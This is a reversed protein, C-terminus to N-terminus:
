NLIQGSKLQGAAEERPAARHAPLAQLQTLGHKPFSPFTRGASAPGGSVAEPSGSSWSRDSVAKLPACPPITPSGSM